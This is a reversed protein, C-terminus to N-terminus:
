AILNANREVDFIVLFAAVEEDVGDFARGSFAADPGLVDDDNAFAEWAKSAEKQAIEFTVSVVFEELDMSSVGFFPTRAVEGGGVLAIEYADGL